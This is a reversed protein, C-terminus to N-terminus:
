DKTLYREKVYADIVEIASEKKNFKAIFLGTHQFILDNHVIVPLPHINSEYSTLVWADKEDQFIAFPYEKRSKWIRSWGSLLITKHNVIILNEYISLENILEMGYVIENAIIYTSFIMAHYFQEDQTTKAGKSRNYNNFGNIITPLNRHVGQKNYEDWDNHTNNVNRDWNSIGRMFAILSGYIEKTIVNTTMLYELILMNSSSLDKDQHHDFNKVHPKFEGGVDIVFIAPNALAAKIKEEDRTRIVEVNYDLFHMLLAIAFIEDAHFTGDHTYVKTKM